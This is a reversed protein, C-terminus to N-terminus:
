SGAEDDRPQVPEIPNAQNLEDDGWGAAGGGPPKSALGGFLLARLRRLPSFYGARQRWALLQEWTPARRVIGELVEPKALSLADCAALALALAASSLLVGHYSRSSHWASGYWWIALGSAATTIAM